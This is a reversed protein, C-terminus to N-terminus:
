ELRQPLPTLSLSPLSPNKERERKKEKREETEGLSRSSIGKAEKKELLHDHMNSQNELM